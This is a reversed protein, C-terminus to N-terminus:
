RHRTRRAAGGAARVDIRPAIRGASCPVPAASEFYLHWGRATRVTLTRPAAGHQGCYNAFASVADPGDLDIVFRGGVPAVGVNACPARRWWDRVVAPDTSADRCGHPVLSGLPIKGRPQLPLVPFGRDVWTLAHQLLSMSHGGAFARLEVHPIFLRDRSCVGAVRSRVLGGCRTCIWAVARRSNAQRSSAPSSNKRNDIGSPFSLVIAGVADAARDSENTRTM